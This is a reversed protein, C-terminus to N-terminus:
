HLLGLKKPRNCVDFNQNLIPGSSCLFNFLIAGFVADFIEGHVIVEMGLFIGLVLPPSPPPPILFTGHQVSHEQTPQSPALHSSPVPQGNPQVFQFM